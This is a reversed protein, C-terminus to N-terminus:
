LGAHDYPWMGAAVALSVNIVCFWTPVPHFDAAFCLVVVALAAVAASLIATCRVALDYSSTGPLSAVYQAYVQRAKKRRQKAAHIMAELQRQPVYADSHQAQRRAYCAAKSAILPVRDSELALAARAPAARFSGSVFVARESDPPQNCRRAVAQPTEPARHEVLAKPLLLRFQPFAPKPLPVPAPQSMPEPATLPETKMSALVHARLAPPLNSGKLLPHQPSGAPQKVPSSLQRIPPSLSQERPVPPRGCSSLNSYAQRGPSYAAQRSSRASRM